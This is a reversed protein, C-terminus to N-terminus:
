RRRRPAAATLRAIGETALDGYPGGTGLYEQYVKIAEQREREEDARSGWNLLRLNHRKQFYQMELAKALNLYGISETPALAVTERLTKIADDLAGGGAEIVGLANLVDANLPWRQRAAKLVDLAKHREDLKVYDDALDFYVPQFQPQRARVREWAVAADKFEGLAYDAQGLVYEVWSPAAPRVAIPALATRAAELEGRQYAEWGARAAADSWDSGALDMVHSEALPRVRLINPEVSPAAVVVGAAMAPAAPTTGNATEHPASGAPAPSASAVGPADGSAPAPVAPMAMTDKGIREISAAFTSPRRAVIGATGRALGSAADRDSGSEDLVHFRVGAPAAATILARVRDSSADGGFGDSMLLIAKPGAVRALNGVLTELIALKRDTVARQQDLTEIEALRASPEVGGPVSTASELDSATALRPHAREIAKVLEGRDSMLRGGVLQGDVIVGGLDDPHFDTSFLQVAAAQLRKLGGSSLHQEDFVVVYVRSPLQAPANALALVGLMVALRARMPRM